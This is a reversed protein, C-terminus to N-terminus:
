PTKPPPTKVAERLKKSFDAEKSVAYEVSDHAASFAQAAEELNVRLNCTLVYMRRFGSPDEEEPLFQGFAGWRIVQYKEGIQRLTDIPVEEIRLYERSKLAQNVLEGAHPTLKIYIRTTMYEPPDPETASSSVADDKGAALLPHPAYFYGCSAVLFATAVVKRMSLNLYTV